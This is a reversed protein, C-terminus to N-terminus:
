SVNQTVEAHSQPAKEQPSEMQLVNAEGDGADSSEDLSLRARITTGGGPRSQVVLEGGLLEVRERMGAMGLSKSSGLRKIEEPDFGQGDDEIILTVESPQCLLVLGVQTADAHRIVNTMAEQAVRYLTVEVRSAMRRGEPLHVCQYDISFPAVEAVEEAYRELASSVGYDDLISPRMNWALRRVEDIMSRIQAGMDELHKALTPGGERSEVKMLLFSLSPGLQDHLEQAIAKREDEQVGVIREILAQRSAEKKDVTSKYARLGAVMQNFAITLKGIEDNSLVVAETTFDGSRVREAVEMLHHVPRTLLYTLGLALCLGIVMCIALTVLMNTTRVQYLVAGGFISAVLIGIGMIKVVIPVSLVRSAFRYIPGPIKINTSM